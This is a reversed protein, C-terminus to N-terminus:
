SSIYFPSGSKHLRNSIADCYKALVILLKRSLESDDNSLLRLNSLKFAIPFLFTVFYRSFIYPSRLPSNYNSRKMYETMREGLDSVKPIIMILLSTSCPINFAKVDSNNM